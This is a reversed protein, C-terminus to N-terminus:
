RDPDLMSELIWKSEADLEAAQVLLKSLANALLTNPDVKREFRAMRHIIWGCLGLDCVSNGNVYALLVAALADFSINPLRVIGGLWGPRRKEIGVLVAGKLVCLRESLWGLAKLMTPNRGEWLMSCGSDRVIAPDKWIIALVQVPLGSRCHQILEERQQRTAAM